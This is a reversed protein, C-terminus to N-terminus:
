ATIPLSIGIILSIVNIAIHIPIGPSILCSCRILFTDINGARLRIVTGGEQTYAIAGGAFPVIRGHASSGCYTEDFFGVQGIGAQVDFGAAAGDIQFAVQALGLSEIRHVNFAGSRHSKAIWVVCGSGVMVARDIRVMPDVNRAAGYRHAPFNMGASGIFRSRGAGDGGAAISVLIGSELQVTYGDLGGTVKGNM